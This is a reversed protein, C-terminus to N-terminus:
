GPSPASVTGGVRPGNGAPYQRGANATSPDWSGTGFDDAWTNGSWTNGYSGWTPTKYSIATQGCNEFYKTSFENGTAVVNRVDAATNAKDVGLQLTHAAGALFNDRIQYGTSGDLNTGAGLYPGNDAAMQVVDNQPGWWPSDGPQPSFDLRNRLWMTAAENGGNAIGNLHYTSDNYYGIVDEGVCEIAADGSNRLFVLTTAISLYCRIVYMRDNPGNGQSEFISETIDPITYSTGGADCFM